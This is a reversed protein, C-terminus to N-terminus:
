KSVAESANLGAISGTCIATGSGSREWLTDIGGLLDGCVFLNSFPQGDQTSPVFREDFEVGAKGIRHGPKALFEPDFRDHLEPVDRLKLDFVPEIIRTRTCLLGGSFFGGSALVFAGASLTRDGSGGSYRISQVQGNKVTTDRVGCGTVLQGGREYIARKLCTYVRRGPLSPPLIPIEFVPVGLLEELLRHAEPGGDVGLVAPIGIRDDPRVVKGIREAIERCFAEDEFANAFTTTKPVRGGLPESADVKGVQVDIGYQRSIRSAALAASFDRFGKFHILTMSRSRRLDGASMTSQVYATPRATGLATPILHNSKGGHFILGQEKCIEVFSAILSEIQKAGIRTYPHTPESISAIAELPNVVPKSDVSGPPYAMLDLCGSSLTVAGMGSAVVTVKAGTKLAAIAASLGALGGGIIAVDTKL